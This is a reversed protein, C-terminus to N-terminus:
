INKLSKLLYGAVFSVIAVATIYLILELFSYGKKETKTTKIATDVIKKETFKQEYFSLQKAISDCNSAATIGTSDIKVKVTARGKKQTFVKPSENSKITTNEIPIFLDVKDGPIFITSDSKKTILETYTVEKKKTETVTKDISKCASFLLIVFVIILKRM